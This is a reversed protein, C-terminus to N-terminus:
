RNAKRSWREKLAGSWVEVGVAALAGPLLLRTATLYRWEPSGVLLVPGLSLLHYAVALALFGLAPSLSLRQRNWRRGPSSRFGAALAAVAFAATGWMWPARATRGLATGLARALWAIYLGPRQRIIAKSLRSLRHNVYVDRPLSVAPEQGRSAQERWAWRAAPVAIRWSNIGLPERWGAYPTDADVPALGLQRRKELINRALPKEEQPLGAIVEEDLMSGAIGVLNYGSFSVLGFHGVVAWRLSCWLLLPTLSLAALTATRKLRRRLGPAGPGPLPLALGAAPVLVVLFLYAPRVLYALALCLGIGLALAARVTGRRPEVLLVLLLSITGLALGAAPIDTMVSPAMHPVLSSYLIPSAGAAAAVHSLGFRRLAAALGMAALCYLALQIEPLCAFGRCLRDVVRLFLPYGPTRITGLMESVPVQRALKVYLRSDNRLIPESAPSASFVTFVVVSQLAVWFTGSRLFPPSRMAPPVPPDWRGATSISGNSNM